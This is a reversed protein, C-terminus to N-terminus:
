PKLFTERVDDLKTSNGNKDLTVYEIDYVPSDYVTSYDAKIVKIPKGLYNLIEGEKFKKKHNKM